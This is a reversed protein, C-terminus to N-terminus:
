TQRNIEKDPLSILVEHAVVNIWEQRVGSNFDETTATAAVMTEGQYLILLHKYLVM